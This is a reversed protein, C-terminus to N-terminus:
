QALQEKHSLPLFLAFVLATMLRAATSKKFLM